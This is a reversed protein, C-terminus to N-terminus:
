QLTLLFGRLLSVDPLFCSFVQILKGNQYLWSPPVFITSCYSFFSFIAVMVKFRGSAMFAMLRIDFFPQSFYHALIASFEEVADNRETAMRHSCVGQIPPDYLFAAAQLSVPGWLDLFVYAYSCGM